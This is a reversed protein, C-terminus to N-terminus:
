KKLRQEVRNLEREMQELQKREFDSLRRKQGENRLQFIKDELTEKKIELVAQSADAAVTMIATDQAHFKVDAERRVLYKDDMKVLAGWGIGVIVALSGIVAAWGKTTTVLKKLPGAGIKKAM